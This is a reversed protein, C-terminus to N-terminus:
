EAPRDWHACLLAVAAAVLYKFVSSLSLNADPEPQGQKASFTRDSSPPFYSLSLLSRLFSPFYLLLRCFSRSFSGFSLLFMLFICYLFSIYAFVFSSILSPLCTLVSLYHILSLFLCHFFSCLFFLVLSCHFFYISFSAFLFSYLSSLYPSFSFSFSHVLLSRLVSLFTYSVLTVCLFLTWMFTSIWTSAFM